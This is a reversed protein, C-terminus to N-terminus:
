VLDSYDAWGNLIRPVGTRPFNKFVISRYSHLGTKRGAWFPSSTSLCLIHPLVYRAANLCDIRFEPDEIGIHVHTGFILLRDALDQLEAKVGLYRELPNVHQQKWSSIPHTGAAAICLGHTKATEIIARRLHILEERCEQITSCVKTGVEVQCQHLEPKVDRLLPLDSKMIKDIGSQLERTEPDIIQYEEEIGVTLSPAKMHPHRM